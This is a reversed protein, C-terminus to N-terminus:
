SRRQRGARGDRIEAGALVAVSERRRADSVIKEAFEEILRAQPRWGM